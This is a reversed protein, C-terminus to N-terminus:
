HAIDIFGLALAAVMMDNIPVPVTASGVPDLYHAGMYDFTLHSEDALGDILFSRTVACSYDVMDAIKSEYGTLAPVAIDNQWLATTNIRRTRDIQNILRQADSRWHPEDLERLRIIGAVASGLDAVSTLEVLGRTSRGFSTAVAPRGSGPFLVMDAGSVVLLPDADTIAAMRRTLRKAISDTDASTYIKYLTSYENHPSYNM